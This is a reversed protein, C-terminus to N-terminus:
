YNIKIKFSKKKASPNAKIELTLSALPEKFKNDESLNNRFNDDDNGSGNWLNNDPFSTTNSYKNDLKFTRMFNSYVQEKETTTAVITSDKFHLNTSIGEIFSVISSGIHSETNAETNAQTAETHAETKAEIILENNASDYAENNAETNVENNAESSSESINVTTAEIIITDKKSNQHQCQNPNLTTAVLSCNEENYKLPHKFFNKIGNLIGPNEKTTEIEEGGKNLIKLQKEFDVAKENKCPCYREDLNDSECSTQCEEDQDKRQFNSSPSRKIQTKLEEAHIKSHDTAKAKKTDRLQALAYNGLRHRTKDQSNKNKYIESNDLKSHQGSQLYEIVDNYPSFIKSKSKTLKNTFKKPYYQNKEIRSRTKGNFFDAENREIRTKQHKQSGNKRRKKLKKKKRKRKHHQKKKSLNRKRLTNKREVNNQLSFVQQRNIDDLNQLLKQDAVPAFNRKPDDQLNQVDQVSRFRGSDDYALYKQSNKSKTQHDQVMRKGSIQITIMMIFLLYSIWHM